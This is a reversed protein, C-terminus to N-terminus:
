RGGMRALEKGDAGYVRFVLGAMMISQSDTADAPASIAYTTVYAPHGALRVIPLETTRGDETMTIRAAPATGTYALVHVVGQPRSYRNLTMPIAGPQNVDLPGVCIPDKDLPNATCFERQKLLYWVGLGVDIREGPRVVRVHSAVKSPSASPRATPPDASSVTHSADPEPSFALKGALPTLLVVAVVATAMRRRRRITRARRVIRERPFVPAACDQAAEDLMQWLEPASPQSSMDNKM